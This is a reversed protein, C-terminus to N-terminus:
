TKDTYVQKKYNVKVQFDSFSLQFSIEVSAIESWIM